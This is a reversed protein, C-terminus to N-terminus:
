NPLPLAVFLAPWPQRRFGRADAILARAESIPSPGLAPLTWSTRMAADVEAAADLVQEAAEDLRELRKEFQLEPRHLDRLLAQPTCDKLDDEIQDPRVVDRPEAIAHGREIMGEDLLSVDQTVHVDIKPEFRLVHELRDTREHIADLLSPDVAALARDRRERVAAMEPDEPPGQAAREELATFSPLGFWRELDRQTAEDIEGSLLDKVKPDRPEDDPPM